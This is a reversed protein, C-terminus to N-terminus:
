RQKARYAAIWRGGWADNGLLLDAARVSEVLSPTRADMIAATLGCHMAMPLFAAGLAARAPMGFSVNSAGVVQNVGFEERILWITELTKRVLSTDAGVPMALPDIVIDALPIDYRGTAVDIIKRTIELRKRPDDPIEDEENPLAIVAAGHRQVLPLIADLRDQEGTVSNVLAKGQYVSLAADLAEVVSSDIVLPLDTLGQVMTVASALLRAEDTLPVGMNVDLMTAGGDVQQAVDVEIRSLDGARLQESFKSRGTPNIREGIVCFPEDPGIVVKRTASSLITQM